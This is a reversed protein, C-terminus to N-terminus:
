TLKAEPGHLQHRWRGTDKAPGRASHQKTSATQYLRAGNEPAV